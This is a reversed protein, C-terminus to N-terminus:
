WLSLVIKGEHLGMIYMTDISDIITLGLGFWESYGGTIPKLNDHGWAYKKYGRWAHKFAEVVASQRKNTAGNFVRTTNDHKVNNLNVYGVGPEELVHNQQEADVENDVKKEVVLVNRNVANVESVDVNLVVSDSNPIFYLVMCCSIIILMYILSRQFRSLQNWARWISKSRRTDNYNENAIPIGVSIHENQVSMM